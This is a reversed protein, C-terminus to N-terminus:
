DNMQSRIWADVSSEIFPLPAGAVSLVEDNFQRIDFSEGLLDEARDRLELIKLM